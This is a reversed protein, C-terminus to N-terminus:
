AAPRQLGLAIDHFNKTFASTMSKLAGVASCNVRLLNDHVCLSTEAKLAGGTMIQSAALNVAGTYCSIGSVNHLTCLQWVAHDHFPTM